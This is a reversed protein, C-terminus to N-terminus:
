PKCERGTSGGLAEVAFGAANAVQWLALTAVVAARRSSGGHGALGSRIRRPLTAHFGLDERLTGSGRASRKLQYLRAGRGYRFHLEAFSALSQAHRHEVCAGACLAIPWGATRWRDCFDRDEAGPRPFSEDFGGLSLFRERPCLLNNSALFYAREPDENFHAYVLDVIFQSTSAFLDDPLGNRTVGGVLAGPRERAAAVLAGLWEPDPRCDDDTFAVFEGASERAGRNRAASPGAQEQRLVRLNMRGAFREVLAALPQPSGDDVVVAEWPERFSQGGLAELCSQLQRPRDFTPVVVSAVPTTM